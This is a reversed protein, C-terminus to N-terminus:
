LEGVILFLEVLLYRGESIHLVVAVIGENDLELLCKNVISSHTHM